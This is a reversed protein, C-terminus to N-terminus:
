LAQTVGLWIERGRGPFAYGYTSHEFQKDMLNSVSFLFEPGRQWPHFTMHLNFLHYGDAIPENPYVARDSTYQWELASTLKESFFAGDIGAKALHEPNNLVVDGDSSETKQYSYNAYGGLGSAHHYELSLEIGQSRLTASNIFGYSDPDEIISDKLESKFFATNIYLARNRYEYVLEQSTMYEPKLKVDHNNLLQGHAHEVGAPTRFAESHILKFTSSANPSWILALRPSFNAAYYDVKDVRGGAIFLWDEAFTFDGQIFAGVSTRATNLIMSWDEPQEGDFIWNGQTDDWHGNVRLKNLYDNTLPLDRRWEIGAMWYQGAIAESDLRLEGTIWDSTTTEKADEDLFEDVYFETDYLAYYDDFRNINGLLSLETKNDLLWRYQGGLMFQQYKQNLSKTYYDGGGAAHYENDKLQHDALLLNISFNDGVWQGMAKTHRGGASYDSGSTQYSYKGQDTYSLQTMWQMGSDTEGGSIQSASFGQNSSSAVRLEAGDIHRGTRTIINLVGYLANGGYMLAGPGKIFEIREIAHIDIIGEDGLFAQDYYGDNIRHGNVMLLFRSNYNAGDSNMGRVGAYNFVNDRTIAIGPLRAIAQSVNRYGYRKIDEATLVSVTGPAESILQRSKSVGVVESILLDEITADFLADNTANANAMFVGGIIFALVNVRVSFNMFLREKEAHIAFPM